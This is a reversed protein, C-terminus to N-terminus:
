AKSRVRLIALMLVEADVRLYAQERRGGLTFNLEVTRGDDTDNNVGVVVDAQTAPGDADHKWVAANGIINEYSM